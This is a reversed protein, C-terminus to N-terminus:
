KAAEGKTAAGAWLSPGKKGMSTAKGPRTPTSIAPTLRRSARTDDSARSHSPRLAPEDPHSGAVSAVSGNGMQGGPGAKAAEANRKADAVLHAFIADSIRRKLCRLAEKHTKGEKVKRDYYARGKM